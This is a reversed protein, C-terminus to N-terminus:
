EVIIQEVNWRTTSGPVYPNSSDYYVTVKDGTVKAAMFVSLFAKAKEDIETTAWKYNFEKGSTTTVYVRKNIFDLSYNSVVQNNVSNWAMVNASFSISFVAILAYINRNIM